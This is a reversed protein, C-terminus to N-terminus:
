LKNVLVLDVDAFLKKSESIAAITNVHPHGIAIASGHKKAVEIAKKIQSLIYPKDMQHDLFVDRGIYEIAYKKSIKQAKSDGTTRSDVFIIDSKKLALLLKGMAAEDATFKSGTHNNIYKVKPFLKKIEEVRQIIKENSDNVRLTLPEESKFSQAEMPLHVMYFSEQSALIASTPRAKSPPLFSMTIPLHLGKVANVHSKVSIDDIIIALKPRKSSKVTKRELAKPLVAEEVEHAANEYQIPLEKVSLPSTENSENSENSEKSPQAAVPEKKLVEKLRDSVSQEDKSTSKKASEEELKKIMSQKVKEKSQEKKLADEKASDHGVYYGIAFSGLAIAIFALSWAIYSLFNSSKKPSAKKRKSM